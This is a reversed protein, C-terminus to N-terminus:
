KEPFGIKEPEESQKNKFDNILKKCIKYGKLHGAEELKVYQETTIFKPPPINFNNAQFNESPCKPPWCSNEIDPQITSNLLIM